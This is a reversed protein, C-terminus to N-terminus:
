HCSPLFTVYSGEWLILVLNTVAVVAAFGALFHFAGNGPVAPSRRFQVVGIVICAVCILATAVTLGHLTWRVNSHNCTQQVLAASLSLHTMWAGISIAVASWLVFVAFRGPSRTQESM